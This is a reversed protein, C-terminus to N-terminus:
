SEVDGNTRRALAELETPVDLGAARYEDALEDPELEELDIARRPLEEWEPPPRLQLYFRLASVDGEMASRYLRAAANQSLGCQSQRVREAFEPDEDVTKFYSTLSVGLKACVMPPSAGYFLLNMCTNQQAGSLLVAASEPAPIAGSGGDDDTISSVPTGDNGVLNVPSAAKGTTSSTTSRRRTGAKATRKRRSSDQKPM